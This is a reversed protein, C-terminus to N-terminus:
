YLRADLLSGGGGEALLMEADRFSYWLGEGWILVHGHLDLNLSLPAPVHWLLPPVPPNERQKDEQFNPWTRKALEAQIISFLM